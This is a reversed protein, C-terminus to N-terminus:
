SKASLAAFEPGAAYTSIRNITDRYQNANLAAKAATANAPGGGGPDGGCDGTVVVAGPTPVGPTAVGAALVGLSSNM